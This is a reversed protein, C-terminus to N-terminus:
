PRTANEQTRAIKAVLSAVANPISGALTDENAAVMVSVRGVALSRKSDIATLESQVPQRHHRDATSLSIPAWRGAWKLWASSTMAALRGKTEGGLAHAPLDEPTVTRLGRSRMWGPWSSRPPWPHWSRLSRARGNKIEMVLASGRLPPLEGKRSPSACPPLRHARSSCRKRRPLCCRRERFGGDKAYMLATRHRGGVQFSGCRTRAASQSSSIVRSRPMNCPRPRTARVDPMSWPARDILLRAIDARGREAALMLLTGHNPPSYNPDSGAGLLREVQALDGQDVARWIPATCATLMGLALAVGVRKV